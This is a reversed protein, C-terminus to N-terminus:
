DTNYIYKDPNESADPANCSVPNTGLRFIPNKKVEPVVM